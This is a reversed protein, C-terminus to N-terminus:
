DGILLRAEEQTKNGSSDIATASVNVASTVLQGKFIKIISGEDAPSVPAATGIATASPDCLDNVDYNISIFERGKAPVQTVELGSRQDIFQISLDPSATDVVSLTVSDQLVGSSVTDVEVSLEHSGLSAVFDVTNGSGVSLGDIFWNVSVIDNIDTTTINANAQMSAGSESTCEFVGDDGPLEISVAETIISSDIDGHILLSYEVGGFGSPDGTPVTATYTLTYTEGSRCTSECSLHAVGDDNFGHAGSGLPISQVANWTVDWGNFDLRVNGTGDDSIVTVPSTTQHMGTNGFFIWPSDINPSESGDVLGSHSGTASQETNLIIGNHSGIQTWIILGPAVEMGFCGGTTCEEIGGNGTSFTLISNPSLAAFTNSSIGATLTMFLSATLLNKNM